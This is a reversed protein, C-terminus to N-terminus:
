KRTEEVKTGFTCLPSMKLWTTPESWQGMRRSSFYISKLYQCFCVSWGRKGSTSQFRGSHFVPESAIIPPLLVPKEAMLWATM